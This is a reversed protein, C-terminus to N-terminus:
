TLGKHHAALLLSLEMVWLHASARLMCSPCTPSPALAPFPLCTNERHAVGEGDEVVVLLGGALCVEWSVWM